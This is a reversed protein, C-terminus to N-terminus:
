RHAPPSSQGPEVKARSYKTWCLNLFETIQAKTVKTKNNVIARQHVTILSLDAIALGCPSFFSLCNATFYPDAKPGISHLAALHGYTERFVAAPQTISEDIFERVEKLFIEPCTTVFRASGLTSEVLNTIEFPLLGTAGKVHQLAQTGVTLFRYLPFLSSQSVKAHQWTREFEVPKTEAELNAPDLGDDGYVFQVVGGISNRVSRDYRSSLDELAKHLFKTM